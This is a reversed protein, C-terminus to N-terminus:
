NPSKQRRILRENPTYLLVTMNGQPICRQLHVTHYEFFPESNQSSAGAVRKIDQSAEMSLKCIDHNSLLKGLIDDLMPEQNLALLDVLFAHESSAIQLPYLLFNIFNRCIPHFTLRINTGNASNNRMCMLNDMGFYMLVHVDSAVSWVQSETQTPLISQLQSPGEPIKFVVKTPMFTPM